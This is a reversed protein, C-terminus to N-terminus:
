KPYWMLWNYGKKIVSESEVLSEKLIYGIQREISTRNKEITKLDMACKPILKEHLRVYKKLTAKSFNFVLKGRCKGTEERAIIDAGHRIEITECSYGSEVLPFDFFRVKKKNVGLNILRDYLSKLDSYFDLQELVNDYSPGVASSGNHEPINM